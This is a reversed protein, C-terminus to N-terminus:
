LDKGRRHAVRRSVWLTRDGALTGIEKGANTAQVDAVRAALTWVDIHPPRHVNEKIARDRRIHDFDNAHQMLTHVRALM